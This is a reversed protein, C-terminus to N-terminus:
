IVRAGLLKALEKKRKTLEMQRQLLQMYQETNNMVMPNSLQNMVRSMESTVVLNKYELVMRVVSDRSITDSTQSNRASLEYRDSMLRSAAKSFDADPSNLFFNNAVFGDGREADHVASLMRAYLPHRFVLGDARLEDYIYDIVTRTQLSDDAQRFELEQEGSRVVAQIIVQEMDYFRQDESSVEVSQGNVMSWKGNVMQETSEDNQPETTGEDASSGEGPEVQNELYRKRQEAIEKERQRQEWNRKRTRMVERILMKEDIQLM